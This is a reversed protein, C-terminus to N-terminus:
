VQFYIYPLVRGSIIKPTHIEVFGQKALAERFLHCVGAELRFLAQNTSTRLDLIRNDLRTDQNVTSLEQLQLFIM